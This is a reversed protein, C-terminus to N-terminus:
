NFFQCIKRLPKVVVKLMPWQIGNIILANYDNRTASLRTILTRNSIGGLRMIVFIRNLYHAKRKNLYMFRLMLEYDAASNFELNYSGYNNFLERRAYFTPHAPMWGWSMSLRSYVKSKWNRVIFDTQHRKVYCLDGYVIDIKEKRFSRVVDEIVTNDSFFDDSNLTGIIDGSSLSIGKNMADYIGLDKESVLINIHNKYRNLISMTSDVSGGDIVIYEIDQYSQNIVSLICQELFEASNLAVTIISIKM